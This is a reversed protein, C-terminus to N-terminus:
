IKIWKNTSDLKFSALHNIKWSRPEIISLFLDDNERKYLHYTQGVIPQFTYQVKTYILENWDYEEKLKQAQSLLENYRTEFESNVDKIKSLKWGDVNDVKIVPAGLNSGYTLERPYYGREESWVVLDPKKKKTV